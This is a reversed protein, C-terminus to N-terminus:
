IALKLQEKYPKIRKEAMVVYKKDKESGIYNRNTLVAALCETGSGVFPVYVLDNIKSCTDILCKSLKLSKITEHEYKGSINGEQSFELVDELKLINNFPRRLDEYDQKLYEYDQKLHLNLYNKIILYQDKTIVNDGNLWNSVCGTIGGTKSPFLSAIEKNTVGAKEFEQKLYKGFPNQPKLYNEFVIENGTKDYDNTYFLLRETHTNFKRSNEVSYYQYQISDKKRWIMSNALNFYKDFIIQIYAIRTFHGWIFLCGNDKLIRKFEVALTEIWKLYDDFSSFTFDFDGKIKYYPPDAIILNISKENIKKMTKSCSECYIKNLEVGM